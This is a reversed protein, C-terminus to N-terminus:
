PSDRWGGWYYKDGVVPYHPPPNTAFRTDFMYNKLYGKGGTTGVPGRYNQVIGGYVNLNGCSSSARTNYGEVMFQGDNTSGTMGGEAILHAYIDLNKPSNSKVIIDKRSILGL